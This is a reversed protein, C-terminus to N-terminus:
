KPDELTFYWKNNEKFIAFKISLNTQNETELKFNIQHFYSPKNFYKPEGFIKIFEKEKEDNIFEDYTWLKYSVVEKNKFHNLFKILKPTLEDLDIKSKDVYCHSLLQKHDGNSQIQKSIEILEELSNVGFSTPINPDTAKNENCSILLTLVIFIQIIKM